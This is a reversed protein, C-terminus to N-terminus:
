RRDIPNIRYIYISFFSEGLKKFEERAENEFSKGTPESTDKFKKIRVTTKLIWRNVRQEYFRPCENPSFFATARCGVEQLNRLFEVARPDKFPRFSNQFRTVWMPRSVNSM